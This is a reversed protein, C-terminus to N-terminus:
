EESSSKAKFENAIKELVEGLQPWEGPFGQRLTDEFLQIRKLADRRTGEVTLYRDSAWRIQEQYAVLLNLRFADRSQKVLATTHKAGLRTVNWLALTFITYVCTAVATAAGANRNLWDWIEM